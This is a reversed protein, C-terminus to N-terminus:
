DSSSPTQCQVGLLRRLEKIAEQFRRYASSASCGSVNGIQEFTLDGWLHAVILERQDIPLRELAAVAAAADLGEVEPEIFWKRPLAADAERKQWRRASKAADLAGNRVVRYLWAVPDAPLSRQTVLKLFANQVVDEPTGCWQRGFLILAAAHEDILRALEEPSM